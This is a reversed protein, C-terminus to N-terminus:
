KFLYLFICFPSWMQLFAMSKTPKAFISRKGRANGKNGRYQFPCFYTKFETKNYQLMFHCSFHKWWFFIFNALYTGMLVIHCSQTAKSENNVLLRRPSSRSFPGHEMGKLIQWSASCRKTQKTDTLIIKADVALWYIIHYFAYCICCNWPWVWLSHKPTKKLRLM